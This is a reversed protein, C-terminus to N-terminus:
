RPRVLEGPGVPSGIRPDLDYICGGFAFTRFRGDVAFHPVYDDRAEDLLRIMRDRSKAAPEFVFEDGNHRYIVWAHQRDSAADAGCRVRGVFFEAEIGVEGLKRWTWLAFDECDGRRLAEFATPHQWLDGEKFLDVDRVYQCDLLWAVMEDITAIRVSSEGDLYHSFHRRSGPGFAKAPVTVAVRHWPSEALHLTSAVRAFRSLIRRFLGPAADTSEM